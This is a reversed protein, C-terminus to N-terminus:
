SRVDAREDHVERRLYDRIFRVLEGRLVYREGINDRLFELKGKELYYHVMGRNIKLVGAVAAPSFMPLVPVVVVPVVSPSVSAPISEAPPLVPPPPVERRTRGM